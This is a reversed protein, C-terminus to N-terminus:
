SWRPQAGADQRRYHPLRDGFPVRRGNRKSIETLDAPKRRMSGALPGDGRGSPGHCTACYTRFVEGGTVRQRMEGEPQAAPEQAMAPVAALPAFLLGGLLAAALIGAKAPREQRVEERSERVTLVSPVDCVHVLHLSGGFRTAITQAHKLALASNSSFDVPVLISKFDPTM